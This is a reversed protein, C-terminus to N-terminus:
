SIVCKLIFYMMVLHVTNDAATQVLATYALYVHDELGPDPKSKSIVAESDFRESLNKWSRGGILHLYKDIISTYDLIFHSAFILVITLIYVHLEALANLPSIFFMVSITYLLCHISCIIANNKKNLAMWDNQLLYDGVLHGLLMKFLLEGTM